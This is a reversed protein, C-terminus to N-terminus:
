PGPPPPTETGNVIGMAENQFEACAKHHKAVAVKLKSKKPEPLSSREVDSTLSELDSSFHQYKEEISAAIVQTNSM